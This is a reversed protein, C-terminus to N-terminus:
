ATTWALGHEDEAGAVRPLVDDAVHAVVGPVAELRDPEDVVVAALDAPANVVHRDEPRAGVQRLDHIAVIRVFHQDGDRAGIRRRNAVDDPRELRELQRDLRERAQAVDDVAADFDAEDALELHRVEQLARRDTEVGRRQALQDGPAAHHHRTGAPRDSRLEAPLDQLEDRGRQHHELAVLVAQVRDPHLQLVRVAGREQLRDDAVDGVLRADVFDQRRVLGVDDEVSRRVLVHRQHFLVRALRDLVVDGAGAQQRLRRLAM